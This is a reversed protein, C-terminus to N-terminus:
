RRSRVPVAAPKDPRISVPIRVTRGDAQHTLVVAGFVYAGLPAGALAFTFALAQSRGPEVTFVPPATTAAIGALGEVSAAWTGPSRDISTLTRRAVAAGTLAHFSIAPLNLDSAPVPVTEEEGLLPDLWKLYGLFDDVNAELVLGADAARTPDIRGSGRDFPGAPTGGEENRMDPRATTMLSSKVAAPSRTPDLQILLAAVGAVHPSAMSTGSLIRFREGPASASLIDVGPAALDPKPIDPVTAQPGRSSFSPVVDAAGPAARAAAISIVPRGGGALLQKVALGDSRSVHVAPVAHPEAKLNEGDAANYLVMGVGGADLVVHGKEVRFNQGRRCLVAKGRVTARDLSGPLCLEAKDAGVGPAPASASDVLPAPPLAGSLSAGRFERRARTADNSVTATAEFTRPLTSAAVSTIWPVSAPSGVTEPGPGNNGAATAVFVGAGHANLLATEVPGSSSSTTSAVSYNIVDVGDAVAADIAAVTDSDTCLNEVQQGADKRGMWCIKYVALQARPAVGSVSAIGFDNGAITPSVGFNGAATAAVHSGHGDADRASLFESEAVRSPGFGAVFWRAGIVKHNCITAPFAEGEQCTGKWSKPAPYPSRDAFSPHTPDIGTDITGIVVGEGAHEPGGLRRWLGGPLDLFSATDGVPVGDQGPAAAQIRSSGDPTVAGVGPSNRLREAETPTLRVAMGALAVHYRYIVREAGIGAAALVQRDQADLRESRRRAEASSLDLGSTALPPARLQVIWVTRELQAPDATAPLLAGLVVALLAIGFARLRGM